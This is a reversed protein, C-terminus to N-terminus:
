GLSCVSFMLLSSEVLIDAEFASLSASGSWAQEAFM